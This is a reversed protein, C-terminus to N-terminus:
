RGRRGDLAYGLFDMVFSPTRTEDLDGPARAIHIRQLEPNTERKLFTEIRARLAEARARSRMIKMCAIRPPAHVM